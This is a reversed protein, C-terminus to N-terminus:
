SERPAAVLEGTTCPLRNKIHSVFYDKFFLMKAILSMQKVQRNCVKELVNIMKKAVHPPTFNDDILQIANKRVKVYLDPNGLLELVAAAFEQSSDAILANEGHVLGMGEAGVSTTVVPVGHAMAEGIKGKMGAGYRLPAVSVCSRHLYSSTEPVYGTVKVSECELNRIKDPPNSGVITLHVDSNKKWILPMIDKCFHLVADVNPSHLFGGVFILANKEPTTDSRCLEHVNPVVECPIDSSEELLAAADDRTVTIVADAKRYVLLENERTKLYIAQDAENKTLDYKQKLRLYHVDVTDVVVRCEPQLIRIRDLYFGAIFYFELIAVKFKKTKLLNWLSFPPTYVTVGAQELLSIYTDDGPKYDCSVLTIEYQQALLSLLSSLRLDGSNMDRRPVVPSVVLIKDKVIQTM